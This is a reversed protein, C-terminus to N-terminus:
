TVSRFRILSNAIQSGGCNVTSVTPLFKAKLHNSTTIDYRDLVSFTFVTQPRNITAPFLDLQLLQIHL